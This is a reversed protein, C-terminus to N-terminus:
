ISLFSSGTAFQDNKESQPRREKRDSKANDGDTYSPSAGSNNMLFLTKPPRIPWRAPVSGFSAAPRPFTRFAPMSQSGPQPPDFLRAPAKQHGRGLM